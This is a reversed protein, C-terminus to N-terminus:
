QHKLLEMSQNYSDEFLEGPWDDKFLGKKTLEMRKVFSNGNKYKGVYNVAVDSPSLKGQAIQVQIGRIIHESHTEIILGPCDLYKRKSSIAQAFIKSLGTQLKPHLHLEPQEIVLNIFRSRIAHVLSFLIPLIQSYGYGVDQLSHLTKSKKNLIEFIYLDNLREDTTPRIIIESNLNLKLLLNNVAIINRSLLPGIDNKHNYSIGMGGVKGYLASLLENSTYYKKPRNRVPPLFTLHEFRNELTPQIITRIKQNIRVEEDVMIKHIAEYLYQWLINLYLDFYKKDLNNEINEYININKDFLIIENIEDNKIKKDSKKTDELKAPNYRPSHWPEVFSWDGFNFKVPRSNHGSYKLKHTLYSGINTSDLTSHWKEWDKIYKCYIKTDPIAEYDFQPLLGYLNMKMGWTSYNLNKLTLEVFSNFKRRSEEESWNTLKLVTELFQKKHQGILKKLHSEENKTFVYKNHKIYDRIEDNPSKSTKYNAVIKDKTIKYSIKDITNKLSWGFHEDYQSRFTLFEIDIPEGSFNNTNSVFNKLDVISGKYQLQFENANYNQSMFAFLKLISSKGGSNPGVFITIPAFVINQKKKFSKYNKVSMKFRM